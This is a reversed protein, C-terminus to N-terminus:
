FGKRGKNGQETYPFFSCDKGCPFSFTPPKVPAFHWTWCASPLRHPPPTTCSVDSSTVELGGLIPLSLQTRVIHPILFPLNQIPDRGCFVITGFPLYKLDLFLFVAWFLGGMPRGFSGCRVQGERKGNGQIDGAVRKWCAVCPSAAFVGPLGRPSCHLM